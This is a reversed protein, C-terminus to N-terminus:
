FFGALVESFHAACELNSLHSAPLLELKSDPIEQTLFHGDKVTTVPDQEGAVVCVEAQIKSISNRLDANALAECCAAYGEPSTGSLQGLLANVWDPRQNV